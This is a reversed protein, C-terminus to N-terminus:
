ILIRDIGSKGATPIESWRCVEETAKKARPCIGHLAGRDLLFDQDSILCSLTTIFSVVIWRNRNWLLLCSKRGLFRLYLAYLRCQCLAPKGQLRLTVKLVVVLILINVLRWERICAWSLDYRILVILLRCCIPLDPLCLSFVNDCRHWLIIFFVLFSLYFKNVKFLPRTCLNDSCNEYKRLLYKM